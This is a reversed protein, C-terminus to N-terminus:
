FTYRIEAESFWAADTLDPYADGPTFYGFVFSLKLGEKNKYAAVFDFEEGLRRHIGDPDEDIDADYITDSPHHQRYRHYFIDLSFHRNPRVGLGLTFVQLNSLEPDFAEGYYKVNQIGSFKAENDQLGTQRFDRNTGDNPNKDGSGVAYGLTVHPTFEHDISYTAGVDFGYGRIRRTEDHGRVAATELWYSLQGNLVGQAHAGIFWPNSDAANRDDQYLGYLSLEVAEERILRTFLGYQRIREDDGENLLDKHRNEGVLLDFGLAGNEYRLSIADLEEDFLWTREDKFRQRGITAQLGPALGHLTLYAQKIELREMDKKRGREDDVIDRFAPELSVFALTDDNPRYAFSLTMLMELQRLDDPDEDDLDYNNEESFETELRVGLHLKDGLRINAGRPSPKDADFRREAQEKSPVAKTLPRLVTGASTKGATRVSAPGAVSTDSGKPFAGGEIVELDVVLRNGRGDFPKLPFVNHRVPRSLDIEAILDEGDAERFRLASINGDYPLVKPVSVPPRTDVFRIQLQRPHAGPQMKHEVSTSLDFVVRSTQATASMRVGDVNAAVVSGSFLGLLVATVILAKM